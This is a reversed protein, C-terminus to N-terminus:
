ESRRSLESLIIKALDNEIEGHRPVAIRKRTIKHIYIDHSSGHRLFEVGWEALIKLFDGRKM